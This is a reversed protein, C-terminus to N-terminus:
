ATVEKRSEVLVDFAKRCKIIDDDEGEIKRLEYGEPIAHSLLEGVSVLGNTAESLEVATKPDPRRQGTAYLSIVSQSRGVINGIQRQTLSDTRKFYEALTM